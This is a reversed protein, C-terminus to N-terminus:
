ANCSHESSEETQWAKQVYVKVFYTGWSGSPHCTYDIAIDYSERLAQSNLETQSFSVAGIAGGCYTKEVAQRLNRM